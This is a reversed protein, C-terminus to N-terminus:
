MRAVDQPDFVSNFDEGLWTPKMGLKRARVEIEVDVTRLALVLAQISDVGYIGFSKRSNGVSVDYPCVWDRQSRLEPSGIRVRCPLETGDESRFVIEREALVVQVEYKPM